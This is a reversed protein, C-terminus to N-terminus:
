SVLYRAVCRLLLSILWCVLVILLSLVGHAASSKLHLHKISIRQSCVVSYAWLLSHCPSYRNDLIQAEHKPIESKSYQEASLSDKAIIKIKKRVEASWLTRTTYPMFQRRESSRQSRPNSDWELCPHRHTRKNHTQTARHKPLRIVAPQDSTWRTRGVTYLLNRFQLFPWPGVSPQLAMSSYFILASWCL